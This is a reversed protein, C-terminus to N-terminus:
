PLKVGANGLDAFPEWIRIQEANLPCSGWEPYTFVAADMKWDIKV